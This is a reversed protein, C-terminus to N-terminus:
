ACRERELKGDEILRNGRGALLREIKAEVLEALISDPSLARLDQAAQRLEDLSAGSTLNKAAIDKAHDFDM